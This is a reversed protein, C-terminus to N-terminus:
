TAPDPESEAEPRALEARCEELELETAFRIMEFSRDDVMNLQEEFEDVEQLVSSIKDLVGVLQCRIGSFELKAQQTEDAQTRAQTNLRAALEIRSARRRETIPNLNQAESM